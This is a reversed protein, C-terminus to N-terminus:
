NKFGDSVATINAGIEELINMLNMAARKLEAEIDDESTGDAFEREAIPEETLVRPFQVALENRAEELDEGSAAAIHGGREDTLLWIFGQM